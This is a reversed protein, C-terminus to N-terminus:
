TELCLVYLLYIYTIIIHSYIKIKTKHEQYFFIYGVVGVWLFFHGGHYRPMMFCCEDHWQM